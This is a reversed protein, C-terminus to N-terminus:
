CFSCASCFDGQRSSSPDENYKTSREKLLSRNHIHFCAYGLLSSIALSAQRDIQELCAVADGINRGADILVDTDVLVLDPM